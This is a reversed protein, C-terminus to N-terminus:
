ARRRDRSRSSRRRGSRGRPRMALNVGLRPLLALHLRDGNSETTRGGVAAIDGQRERAHPEILAISNKMRM